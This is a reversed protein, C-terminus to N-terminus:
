SRPPCPPNLIVSNTITLQNTTSMQKKNPLFVTVKRTQYDRTLYDKVGKAETLLEGVLDKGSIVAVGNTFKGVVCVEIVSNADIGFDMEIMMDGNITGADSFAVKFTEPDTKEVIPNMKDDVHVSGSLKTVSLAVSPSPAASGKPETEITLHNSIGNPTAIHVDFTLRGGCTQTRATTPISVKMVNRSMLVVDEAPVGGTIVQTEHVSLGKGLIFVTSKQGEQPPEGFWAVLSPALRAASSTFIESAGLDNENPLKVVMDQMPLMAELQEVRAMLREVEGDRYNHADVCQQLATKASQVKRSWALMQTTKLDQDTCHGALDFWNTTSSLRMAPIFNPAVMLCVCERPGPEIRRQRIQYNPSNGGWVLLNAIRQPNCPPPPSQMRPYFKWGFTQEGAGFGVATRNLGVSALDQEIQRAYSTANKFGVKGSALGVALAMQLASRQSFLDYYNQQDVMPDLSFVYIPWKAKVYENFASRAEPSPNLSYFQLGDADSLISGKRQAIIHMDEILQQEVFVSNVILTFILANLARTSNERCGNPNCSLFQNRYTDLNNCDRKRVAERICEALDGTFIDNGLRLQAKMHRYAFDLQANLWILTSPDHHCADSEMTRYVSVIANITEDGILEEVGVGISTFDTGNGPISPAAAPKPRSEGSASDGDAVAGPNSAEDAVPMETGLSEKAPLAPVMPEEYGVRRIHNRAHRGSKAQAVQCEAMCQHLRHLVPGTLTYATDLTLVQQYTVELLENTLHHQVQMTVVAGKGHDTKKGPLLSVPVRVLYLGYGPTDTQDDGTNIRELQQLHYLYRAKEDLFVTPELGIEKVAFLSDDAKLTNSAMSSVLGAAANSPLEPISVSSNRITLDGQVATATTLAAIDANRQLGNITEAFTSLNKEMEQDFERRYRTMRNQGWVDPTKVTVVGRREVLEGEIEDILAALHELSGVCPRAHSSGTLKEIFGASAPIALTFTLALIALLHRRLDAPRRLSVATGCFNFGAITSM